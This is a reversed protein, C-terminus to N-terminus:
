LDTIRPGIELRPVRDLSEIEEKTTLPKKGYQLAYYGAVAIMGANDTRYKKEPFYFSVNFNDALKHMRRIISRNMVVGGGILFTKPKYLEMAKGTKLELSKIVTEVFTACFDDVWGKYQKGSEKFDRISYMCATKLGSFSFDLSLSKKMPIPLEFKSSDGGEALKSVIPGGPFGLELM